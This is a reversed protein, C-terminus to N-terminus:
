DRKSLRVMNQTGIFSYQHGSGNEAIAPQAKLVEGAAQVVLIPTHMKVGQIGSDQTFNKGGQSTGSWAGALFSSDTGLSAVTKAAGKAASTADRAAGSYHMEVVYGVPSVAHIKSGNGGSFAVTWGDALHVTPEGGDWKVNDAAAAPASATPTAAGSAAAGSPAPSHSAMFKDFEAQLHKQGESDLNAYPMFLLNGGQIVALIKGDKEIRKSQGSVLRFTLGDMQIATFGAPSQQGNAFMAAGVLAALLALKYCLSQISTVMSFGKTREISFHHFCNVKLSRPM